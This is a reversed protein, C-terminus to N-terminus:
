RVKSFAPMGMSDRERVGVDTYQAENERSPSVIVPRSKADCDRYWAVALPEEISLLRM